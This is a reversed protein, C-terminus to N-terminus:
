RSPRSSRSALCFRSYSPFDNQLHALRIVHEAHSASERLSQTGEAQPHFRIVFRQIAKASKAGELHILGSVKGRGSRTGPLRPPLGYQVPRQVTGAGAEGAENAENAETLGLGLIPNM